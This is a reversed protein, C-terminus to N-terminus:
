DMLLHGLIGDLDKTDLISGHDAGLIEFFKDNEKLLGKLRTGDNYLSSKTGAIIVIPSTAKRIDQDTRFPFRNINPLPLFLAELYKDQFKERPEILITKRPNNNVSLHSAISTGLSYGIIVIKNEQYRTKLFDYIMQADSYFNEMTINGKSKGHERYDTIIIDYGLVLFKPAISGWSELNAGNGKWFCIVGKSSDSKFLLSNIRGNDKAKFDLEEFAEKFKFSYDDPLGTSKFRSVQLTFFYFYLGLYGFIGIAFAILILKKM